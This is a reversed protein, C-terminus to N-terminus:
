EPWPSFTLSSTGREVWLPTKEAGPASVTVIAGTACGDVDAVKWVTTQKAPGWDELFRQYNYDRCPHTDSCGWTQYAAPFQSANLESLFQKVLREESYNQFFEYGSFGIILLAVLAVVLWKIFRARREEGAGYDQLYGSM